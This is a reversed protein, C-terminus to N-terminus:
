PRLRDLLYMVTLTQYLLLRAQEADPEDSGPPRPTRAHQWRAPASLRSWHEVLAGLFDVTAADLRSRWGSVLHRLCEDPQGDELRAEWIGYANGLVSVFAQVAERCLTAVSATDVPTDDRRLLEEAMSWKDCAVTYEREFHAVVSDTDEVMDLRQIPQGCPCKIAQARM